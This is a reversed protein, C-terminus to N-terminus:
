VVTIRCARHDHWMFYSRTNWFYGPPQKVSAVTIESSHQRKARKYKVTNWTRFSLSYILYFFAALTTSATRHMLFVVGYASKWGVHRNNLSFWAIDTLVPLIVVTSFLSLFSIHMEARFFWILLLWHVNLNECGTSSSLLWRQRTKSAPGATQLAERGRGQARIPPRHQAQSLRCQLPLAAYQLPSQPQQVLCECHLESPPPPSITAALSPAQSWSHNSCPLSLLSAPFLSCQSEDTNTIFPPIFFCHCTSQQTTM